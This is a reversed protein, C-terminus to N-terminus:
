AHRDWLSQYSGEGRIAAVVQAREEALLQRYVAECEEAIGAHGSASMRDIIRQWVGSTQLVEVHQPWMFSM